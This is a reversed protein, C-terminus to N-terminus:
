TYISHEPADVRCPEEFVRSLELLHVIVDVLDRFGRSRRYEELWSYVDVPVRITVLRVRGKSGGRM